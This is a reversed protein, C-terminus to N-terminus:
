ACLRLTNTGKKVLATVDFESELHSGQTFGVYSENLYLEACSGAGELVIYHRREDQVEFDREYVGVPNINPVFPPDCPFPYNINTYNPPEYGKAQWCSPVETNEWHTSIRCSMETKFFLSGGHATLLPISARGRRFIGAEPRCGAKAQKKRIKMDVCVDFTRESVIGLDARRRDM